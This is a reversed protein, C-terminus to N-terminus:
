PQIFPFFFVCLQHIFALRDNENSIEDLGDILLLTEGSRLAQKVLLMFATDLETIEARKVIGHLADTITSETLNSLQRCRILLPLWSRKPLNDNISESREPFAYALVLRKLLTTKGEM